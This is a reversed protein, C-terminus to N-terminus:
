TTRGEAKAIARAAKIKAQQTIEYARKQGADLMNLGIWQKDASALADILGTLAELLDPTSSILSSVKQVELKDPLEVIAVQMGLEDYVGRVINLGDRMM